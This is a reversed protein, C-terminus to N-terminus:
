DHCLEVTIAEQGYLEQLIVMLDKKLCKVTAHFVNCECVIGIKELAECSLYTDTTEWSVCARELAETRALASSKSEAVAHLNQLALRFVEDAIEPM